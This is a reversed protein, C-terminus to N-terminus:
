KISPMADGRRDRGGSGQCGRLPDRPTSNASDPGCASGDLRKRTPAPSRRSGSRHNDYVFKEHDPLLDGHHRDHEAMILAPILIDDCLDIDSKGKRYDDAVKRAATQDMALLRHYLRGAPSMAPKDSLAVSLFRLRPIYQGMVVLCVTMPTALLLGVGGWLWAWFIAAVLIAVTSVGTGGGYIVPELFNSVCLEVVLFLGATLGAHLWGPFVGVALLIPAAAALWIGIYPIFRLVMALFGWVFANPVHLITLGIGIIIGVSGNVVSQMLLYHGVREAAEEMAQATVTLKEGGLLHLVRDRIDELELLIFISLVAVIFTTELPGVIHSLTTSVVGWGTQLGDVIRVPIM